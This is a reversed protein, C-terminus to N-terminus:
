QSLGDGDGRSVNLGYRGFCISCELEAFCDRGGEPLSLEDADTSPNGDGCSEIGGGGGSGIQHGCSRVEGGVARDM